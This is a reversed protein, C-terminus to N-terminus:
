RVVDHRFRAILYQQDSQGAGSVPIRDAAHGRSRAHAELRAGLKLGSETKTLGLLRLGADVRAAHCISNAVNDEGANQAGTLNSYGEVTVNLPEREFVLQAHAPSALALAIATVSSYRPFRM